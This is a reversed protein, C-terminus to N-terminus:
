RRKQAVITNDIRSIENLLGYDPHSIINQENQDPITDGDEYTIKIKDPPTQWAVVNGSQGRIKNQPQKYSLIETKM